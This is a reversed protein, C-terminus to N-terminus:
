MMVRVSWMEGELERVSVCRGGEPVRVSVSVGGWGKGQVGFGGRNGRASTLGPPPVDFGVHPIAITGAGKPAPPCDRELLFKIFHGLKSGQPAPKDRSCQNTRRTAPHARIPVTLPRPNAHSASTPARLFTSPQSQHAQRWCMEQQETM